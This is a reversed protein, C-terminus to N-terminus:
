HSGSVNRSQRRISEPLMIDIEPESFTQEEETKLAKQAEAYSKDDTRPYKSYIAATRTQLDDRRRIIEAQELAEFDTLLSVYEERITWLLNAAEKHEHASEVLAFAKYYTNLILLVLSLASGLLSSVKENSIFTALYSGTALASLVIQWTKITENKKLLRSILKEHSTQTYTVRGFADRIQSELKYGPSSPSDRDM